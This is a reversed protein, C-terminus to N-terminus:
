GRWKETPRMSRWLTQVADTSPLSESRPPTSTSPMLISDAQNVTSIAKLTKLDFITVTNAKGNSTFGRGLDAALAIGHVGSTDPIDGVMAGSDADLVVVHTSHSVYVRRAASDVIAYDWKGAGGIPITKLVHYGSSVSPVANAFGALLFTAVASLMAAAIVVSRNHRM